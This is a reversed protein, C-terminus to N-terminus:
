SVDQCQTAKRPIVYGLIDVSISEAKLNILAAPSKVLYRFPDAPDADRAKLSGSESHGALYIRGTSIKVVRLVQREGMEEIGLMDDVCLRMVLPAGCFARHAYAVSKRFEQYPRQNAEFTAIVEGGWKGGEAEFIEYCYNSDGKYGKYIRGDRDKIPIVRMQEIVRVRRIGTEESFKQLEAKIQKKDALGSMRSELLRRLEPDAIKELEKPNEFNTVPVRHRVVSQDKAGAAGVIGYATDNHLAAEPGHDPKFSVVVRDIVSEIEQYFGAWPEPMDELIRDLQRQEARAAASSVRQLMGRDTLAVVVADVAHHRHDDRNKANGEGLIRNLGWKSRILATLRGPSTRICNPPCVGCLYERAVRAMYATDTLQRAEFSKESAYREMADEAFRGRKNQPLANARGLIEEWSYNPATGFAEWPGRNAKFRNHERFCLVKNAISDDLTRSFPLIHDIHVRDPDFLQSMSIPKGSYVCTRRHPDANTEEWLRLRLRNEYNSPLGLESLTRAHGENRRQNESQERRLDEKAKASMKLDRALEIAIETPRGYRKIVANVLKRLQNLGVHVTPNAIRGYRAEDNDRPDNTGPTVYRQLVAGYYPLQRRIEGTYQDSHNYGARKAADAYTVVDRKLEAVIASLAKVSLRGYGDPMVAASLRLADDTSFGFEGKLRDLLKAEDTEALLLEVITTQQEQPLAIWRGGIGRKGALKAAVEDGKLKDRRESELNFRTDRPLGILKAMSSFKLESGALLKAALTDREHLTLPRETMHADIVRLNNLEQYIRFQQSLPHAIPARDDAPEFYCKGPKVARLPRQFFMCDRIATCAESTLLGPRYASQVSWLVDFEEAVMARHVYLLYSAKAGSGILRARVPEKRSHRDALYQGITAFQGGGSRLHQAMREIASSIKGKENEDANDAKRNSQFGRRQNMHFLARGLEHPALERNLGEARLTWPDLNEIKKREGIDTPMLGYKVLLSMLKGRRSLYRDRRRRMQRPLRRASALSSGDKPNRSDSFIRAGARVLGCPQGAPDLRLVAWGLSNTGLDIGLRYKM